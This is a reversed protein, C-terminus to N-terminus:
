TENEKLHAEIKAITARASPSKKAVAKNGFMRVDHLLGSLAEAAERLLERDTM